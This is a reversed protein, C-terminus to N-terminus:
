DDRESKNVKFRLIFLVTDLWGRWCQPEYYCARGYKEPNGYHECKEHPCFEKM